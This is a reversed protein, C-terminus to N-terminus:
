RRSWSYGWVSAVGTLAIPPPTRTTIGTNVSIDIRVWFQSKPSILGIKM